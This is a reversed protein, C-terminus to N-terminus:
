PQLALAAPWVGAEDRIARGLLGNESGKARLFLTVGHEDLVCILSGYAHRQYGQEIVRGSSSSKSSASPM